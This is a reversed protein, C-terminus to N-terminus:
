SAPLWCDDDGKVIEFFTVTAANHLAVFIDKGTESFGGSQNPKLEKFWGTAIHDGQKFVAVAMKKHVFKKINFLGPCATRVYINGNIVLAFVKDERKTKEETAEM